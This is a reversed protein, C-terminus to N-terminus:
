KNELAAEGELKVVNCNCSRNFTNEKLKFCGLTLDCSFAQTKIYTTCCNARLNYMLTFVNYM